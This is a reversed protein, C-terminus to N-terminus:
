EIIQAMRLLHIKLFNTLDLFLKFLRLFRAKDWGGLEFRKFITALQLNKCNQKAMAM